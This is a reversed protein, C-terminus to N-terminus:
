WTKGGKRSRLYELWGCYYVWGGGGVGGSCHWCWWWWWWGGERRGAWGMVWEGVGAGEISCVVVVVLGGGLLM